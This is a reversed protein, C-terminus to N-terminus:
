EDQGGKEALKPESEVVDPKCVHQTDSSVSSIIFAALQLVFWSSASAVLAWGAGYFSGFFGSLPGLSWSAKRCADALKLWADEKFRFSLGM